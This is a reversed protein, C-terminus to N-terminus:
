GPLLRGAVLDEFAAQTTQAVARAPDDPLNTDFPDTNGRASAIGAARHEQRSVEVSGAIVLVPVPSLSAVQSVFSNTLAAEDLRGKGTVVLDTDQLAATLAELDQPDPLLALEADPLVQRVGRAKAAAADSASLTGKFREPAIVVRLPPVLGETM